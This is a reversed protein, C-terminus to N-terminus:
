RSGGRSFVFVHGKSNVAVGAAEGLHIDTPLKLFDRVSEYPIQPAPQGPPQQAPAQQALGLTGALALLGMSWRVMFTRGTHPRSPRITLRERQDPGPGGGGM